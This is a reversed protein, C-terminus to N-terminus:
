VHFTALRRGEDELEERDARALKGFPKLEIRGKEHRWTGAVAGDVLFTPVSQPTKSHFVKPRHEEPLVLTRRCHV